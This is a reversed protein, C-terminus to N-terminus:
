KGQKNLQIGAAQPVHLAWKDGLFVGDRNLTHGFRTNKERVYVPFKLVIEDDTIKKKNHVACYLKILYEGEHFLGADLSFTLRQRGASFFNHDNEMHDFTSAHALQQHRMNWVSLGIFLDSHPKLIEYEVTLRPVEGHYFFEREGELAVSHFRIHEDGADGSWRFSKDLFNKMYQNVCQDMNGSTIIRGKDLYIGKNCLSLVSGLDHSVFIVTRGNTGLDNLKQFCKAQFQTDGVALVEDVILLDSDLNAAIAFGLRMYMGSSFRKVPTDLFKEVESFAVIEDFKKKIESRTMGLIAGNLYINERGTLEPHFGTGVELLSSLRGHIRVSGSTPETIRSLIKLLTSKGAGNRGIIGVRDGEEIDFSIDKLAWFEEYSDASDAHSDFPHRLRNYLAKSKRSLTEVLTTNPHQGQHSLLYKKSINKIQVAKAM